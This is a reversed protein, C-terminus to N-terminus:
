IAEVGVTAANIDAATWRTTGSIADSCVQGALRYANTAIVQKSWANGGSALHLKCNRLGGDAVRVEATAAVGYILAPTSTDAVAYMDKHGVTSTYVYTSDGDGISAVNAANSAGGSRSMQVSSDGTPLLIGVSCDGLFDNNTSGTLDLVYMDDFYYVHSGIDNEGLRIRSIGSEGTNNRTDVGSAAGAAVGNVRCEVSGATDHITVKVEIYTWVLSAITVTLLTTNASNKVVFANTAAQLYLHTNGRADQLTVFTRGDITNRYFAFGLVISAANNAIVSEVYKGQSTTLQKVSRTSAAVSPVGVRRGWRSDLPLAGDVYQDFGEMWLLAM